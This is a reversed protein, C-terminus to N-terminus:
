PVPRQLEYVVTESYCISSGHCTPHRENGASLIQWGEDLLRTVEQRSEPYWSHVPVVRKDTNM